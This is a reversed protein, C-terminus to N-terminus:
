HRVLTSKRTAVGAAEYLLASAVVVVCGIVNFWLYTIDTFWSTAFIAAQGTLVGFFAATGRVRKFYFALVFVGLVSGYFFSGIRNVAEILAGFSRSSNAFVVAYVGWFITMLRSAWLYHRDSAERKMFRRYFDIVSVTALSNIEGSTSSVAATFIVAILLGVVGVPLFNTVYSLFIYNTDNFGKTGEVQDVAELAHKRATEFGRDADHFAAIEESAPRKERLAENLRLAAEKRQEFAQDYEHQVGSWAETKQVRSAEEPHFIAPPKVFLFVVFVMAGIFLIFAQMPVKALANLLLSLRSQAISKGTLYRQVQSQDCGFYSLALFSGGILGSWINYRNTLDWHFDVANIRGAIGALHIANAVSVTSPMLHFAIVLCLILAACIMTMQQVDAWTVAKIGGLTTYLVIIAGMLVTTMYDPWRLVVSLLVAPAYLSFGASLGRQTLFIFSVLARTKTDFRKELYEYATYVKARHFIPVATTCLIVMAIPLGFYFQVFRMGDVYAQATTSIFTIASAQTAMISLGMAYWPMTRGALLYRDVTNSGRGRYVGYSVILALWSFLVVWDLPRM